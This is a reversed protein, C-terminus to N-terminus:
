PIGRPPARGPAPRLRLVSCGALCGREPRLAGHSLMTRGSLDVQIRGHGARLFDFVGFAAYLLLMIITLGVLTPVSHAPLVRDYLQLM